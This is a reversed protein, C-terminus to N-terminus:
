ARTSAKISDVFWRIAAEGDKLVVTTMPRNHRITNRLEALQGFRMALQEKTGFVDAFQQWAKGCIVAELERLDFYVIQAELGDAALDKLSPQKRTVGSMRDAVKQLIHPQIAIEDAPFREIILARLDLEIAEIHANLRGLHDAPSPPATGREGTRATLQEDLRDIRWDLFADYDDDELPSSPGTPLCHSSLVSDLGDGLAQRIEALYRSPAKKGILGNTTRDILTHNLVSDPEGGRGTEVLFGKPFVHHDDIKGTEILDVTLPAATHFDRPQACLTLAITARYAGHQRGTVTRWDQPNWAFSEVV